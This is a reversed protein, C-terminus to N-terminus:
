GIWQVPALVAVAAALGPTAPVDHVRVSRWAGGLEPVAHVLRGAGDDDDPSSFAVRAPELFARHGLARALAAKRAWMTARLAARDAGAVADLLELESAHFAAADITHGSPGAREVAVGLPHGTGTAAVVIGDGAAVDAYWRAGSPPTPYEVRPTGHRAGCVGCRRVLEVDDVPVGSARAILRRLVPEPAKAHRDGAVRLITVGVDDVTWTQEGPLAQM